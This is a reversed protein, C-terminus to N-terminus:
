SARVENVHARGGPPLVTIWVLYYRAKAGELDFTTRQGVTQSRSDTQFGTDPSDSAQIEAAFGPTDTELAIRSVVKPANAALVIGIGRKGLSALTSHYSETYWFTQPNGDTALPAKDNHEGGDGPPPDYAGVGRLSIAAAHAPPSGIRAPTRGGGHLVFFGVVAGSLAVIGAALAVLPWLTRRRAIRPAGVGAELPAAPRPRVITTQASDAAEGDLCAELEDCFAAMTPFRDRPRKQLARAVASAVRSPADPRYDSVSPAPENVHRLAVE